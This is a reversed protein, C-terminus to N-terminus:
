VPGLEITSGDVLRSAAAAASVEVSGATRAANLPAPVTGNWTWLMILSTKM